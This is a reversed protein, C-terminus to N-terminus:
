EWNILCNPKSNRRHNPQLGCGDQSNRFIATTLVRSSPSRYTFGFRRYPIVVMGSFASRNGKGSASKPYACVTDTSEQLAYHNAGLRISVPQFKLNIYYVLFHGSTSHPKDRPQQVLCLNSNEKLAPIHFVNPSFNQSAQWLVSLSDCPWVSTKQLCTIYYSISPTANLLSATLKYPRPSLM